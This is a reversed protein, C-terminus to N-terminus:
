DRSVLCCYPYSAKTDRMDFMSTGENNTSVGLITVTDELRGSAVIHKGDSSYLLSSIENLRQLVEFGYVVGGERFEWFWVTNDSSILRRGDPSYKVQVVLGSHTYFRRLIKFSEVGIVYVSGLSGVALFSGCPSFDLASVEGLLCEGLSVTKQLAGTSVGWLNVGGEKGGVALFSGCKSYAVCPIDCGTDFQNVVTLTSVEVISVYGTWSVCAFYSGDTSFCGSVISGFDENGKICGLLVGSSVSYFNVCNQALEALILGNPSAYLARTFSKKEIVRVTNLEMDVIHIPSFSDTMALLQQM